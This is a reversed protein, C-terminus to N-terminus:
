AVTIGSSNANLLSLTAVCTHNDSAGGAKTITADLPITNTAGVAGGVAGLAATCTVTTAGAVNAAAGGFAASITAAAAVGATRVVTVIYCNTAAAEEAGIAGGAGIRGTLRVLYSASHAANPITLTFVTKAVADTFATVSKNIETRSTVTSASAVSGNFLFSNAGVRAVTADLGAGFSILDTGFGLSQTGGAAFRMFSNFFFGHNTGGTFSLGPAGATGSAARFATSASVVTGGITTATIPGTFAAGALAAYTTGATVISLYEAAIEAATQYDAADEEAMTGIGDLVHAANWEGANVEAGPEDPLTAVTAHTVTVAM